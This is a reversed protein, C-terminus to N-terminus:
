TLTNTKELEDLLERLDEKLHSIDYDDEPVIPPPPRFLDLVEQALGLPGGVGMLAGNKEMYAQVRLLGRVGSKLSFGGQIMPEIVATVFSSMSKFKGKEAQEKLSNADGETLYFAVLKSRKEGPTPPRGGLNKM